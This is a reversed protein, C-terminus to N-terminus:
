PPQRRAPTQRVLNRRKTTQLIPFGSLGGPASAEGPPRDATHAVRRDVHLLVVGSGVIAVVGLEPREHPACKNFAPAGVAGLLVADSALCADLTEVPLPTGTQEIAAGGILHETFAFEVGHIEAVARLCRVAERTVEPGIGDGPLVTIHLKM